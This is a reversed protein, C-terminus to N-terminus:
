GSSSTEIPEGGRKTPNVDHPEIWGFWVSAWLFVFAAASLGARWSLARATSGTHGEGRILSNLARFLAVVAAALLLLAVIKVWLM